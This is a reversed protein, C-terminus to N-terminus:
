LAIFLSTISWLMDAITAAYKQKARQKQTILTFIM